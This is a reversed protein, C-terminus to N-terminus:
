RVGVNVGHPPDGGGWSGQARGGHRGVPHPGHAGREAGRPCGQGFSAWARRPPPAPLALKRRTRMTSLFKGVGGASGMSHQALEIAHSFSKFPTSFHTPCPWSLRLQCALKLERPRSGGQSQWRTQLWAPSPVLRTGRARWVRDVHQECDSTTRIVALLVRSRCPEFHLPRTKPVRGLRGRSSIPTLLPRPRSSVELCM